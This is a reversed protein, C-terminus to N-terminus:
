ACKPSSIQVTVIFMLTYYRLHCTAVSLHARAAREGDVGREIYQLSCGVVVIELSHCVAVPVDEVSDSLSTLIFLTEIELHFFCLSIHM